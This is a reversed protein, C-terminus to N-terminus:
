KKRTWVVKLFRLDKGDAVDYIELIETDEDVFTYVEKLSREIGRIDFQKYSMTISKSAEDWPGEMVVGPNGDQIMARTFVQRVPDYGTIRVGTFPKGAGTVNGEIESILFRGNADMHNKLVSTSSIPPKGPSFWVSAEGMWTGKSRALLKHQETISNKISDLAPNAQGFCSETLAFILFFGGVIKCIHFKIKKM